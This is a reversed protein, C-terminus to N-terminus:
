LLLTFRCFVAPLICNGGGSSTHSSHLPPTRPQSPGEFVLSLCSFLPQNCMKVSASLKFAGLYSFMSFSSDKQM